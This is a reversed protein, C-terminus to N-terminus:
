DIFKIYKLNEVSTLPTDTDDSKKLEPTLNKARRGQKSQRMTRSALLRHGKTHIFLDPSTDFNLDIPGATEEWM